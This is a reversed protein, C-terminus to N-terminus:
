VFVGNPNAPTGGPLFPSDDDPTGTASGIWDTLATAGSAATTTVRYEYDVGSAPVAHVIVGNLACSRSWDVVQTDVPRAEIFASVAPEEGAGPGATAVQVLIRGQAPDETLVVTATPPPDYAVHVLTDDWDSWLLTGGGGDTAARGQVHEDRNNTEFPVLVSRVGTSNVQGSDWYVTGTVPNGAGDDAVRRLQYAVQAAFSWAVVYVGADITGGSAPSTTTFAGPDAFSLHLSDSRPSAAGAQDYTVVQVQISTGAPYTGAPITITQLPSTRESTQVWTVGGDTSIWYDRGSQSDSPDPDSFQYTVTQSVSRNVTVGAPSTWAPKNPPRNTGLFVSVASTTGGTGTFTAPLIGADQGGSVPDDGAFVLVAFPLGSSGGTLTHAVRTSATGASLSAGSLGTASYLRVLMGDSSAHVNPASARDAAWGSASSVAGTYAVYGILGASVYGPTGQVSITVTDSDGAARQRIWVPDFNQGTGDLQTWTSIQDQPTWGSDNGGGGRSAVLGWLIEYDGAAGGAPLTFSASGGGAATTVAFTDEARFAVAM